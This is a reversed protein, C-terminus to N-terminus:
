SSGSAPGRCTTCWWRPPHPPPPPPCPVPPAVGDHTSVSQLPPPPQETPPSRAPARCVAACVSDFVAPLHQLLTATTPTRPPLHTPPHRDRTAATRRAMGQSCTGTDLAEPTTAFCWGPPRPGSLPLLCLVAAHQGHVADRSVGSAGPLSSTLWTLSKSLGLTEVAACPVPLATSGPLRM